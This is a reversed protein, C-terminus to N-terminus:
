FGWWPDDPDDPLFGGEGAAEEAFVLTDSLVTDIVHVVGNKALRDTLLIKATVGGSVVFTGSSNSIFRTFQRSMSVSPAFTTSYLSKRDIVHNFFLLSVNEPTKVLESFQQGFKDFAANNPALLTFGHPFYNDFYELFRKPKGDPLSTNFSSNDMDKKLKSTEPANLVLSLKPPITLVHNITFIAYGQILHSDLVTTPNPQNLLEVVERNERWILVQSQNKGLQVCDRDNLLTRAVTVESKAKALIHKTINCYFNGEIIHYSILKAVLETDMTELPLEKFADDSPIFLSFNTGVGLRSILSIGTKTRRIAPFLSAFTTLGTANIKGIFDESLAHVLGFAISLGIIRLVRM